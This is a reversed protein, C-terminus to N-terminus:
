EYIRHPRNAFRATDKNKDWWDIWQQKDTLGAAVESPVLVVKRLSAIIMDERAKRASDIQAQPTRTGVLFSHSKLADILMQASAKGGIFELKPVAFSYYKDDLEKGIAEIETPDGQEALAVQAKGRIGPGHLHFASPQDGNDRIQALQKLVPITRGDGDEALDLIADFFGWQIKRVLCAERRSLSNPVQISWTVLAGKNKRAWEAWARRSDVFTVPPDRLSWELSELGNYLWDSSTIGEDEASVPIRDSTDSVHSLFYDILAGASENTGIRGLKHLAQAHSERAILTAQYKDTELQRRIEKFAKSDGLRALSIQAAGQVSDAPMDPKSIRRLAPILRSGGIASIRYVEDVRAPNETDSSSYESGEEGLLELERELRSISIQTSPCKQAVVSPTFALVVLVFSLTFSKM